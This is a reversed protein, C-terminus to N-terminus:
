VLSYCHVCELAAGAMLARDRPVDFLTASEAILFPRLRKGGGLTAYRMAEILRAPRALEGAESEGALLRDLLDDVEAALADLRASFAGASQRALSPATMM